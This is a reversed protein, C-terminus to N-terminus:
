LATIGVIAIADAQIRAAATGAALGPTCLEVVQTQVVILIGAEIKSVASCQRRLSATDDAADHLKLLPAQDAAITYQTQLRLYLLHDAGVQIRGAKGAENM